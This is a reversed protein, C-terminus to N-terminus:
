RIGSGAGPPIANTVGSGGSSPGPGSTTGDSSNGTDSPTDPALPTTLDVMDSYISQGDLAVLGRFRIPSALATPPFQRVPIKLTQEVIQNDSTIQLSTAISLHGDINAFNSHHDTALLPEGNVDYFFVAVTGTTGSHGRIEGRVLIPLLYSDGEPILRGATVTLYSHETPPPAIQNHVDDSPAGPHDSSEATLPPTINTPNPPAPDPPVPHLHPAAHKPHAKVYVIRGGVALLALLGVIAATLAHRSRAPALSRSDDRRKQAEVQQLKASIIRPSASGTGNTGAGREGQSPVPELAAALSLTALDNRIAVLSAAVVDIAAPRAETDLTVCAEILRSLPEPVAPNLARIPPFKFPQAVPDHGTLLHHLTAGFSYIDSRADTQHRGFQEPPSYGVSGLLSTDKNAGPTFRRAIGFDILRINGDPQVMVNSPKLDRFIIPPQQTHLYSLVDAIQLAYEIVQAVDLPGGAEKLRAELTVGEIYEMVLYFRDNEIFADTVKPLNPHNLRVLFRAEGECQSLEQRDEERDGTQAQVEKIAVIADLRVHEALYVTGMGGKGLTRVIRYRENLM